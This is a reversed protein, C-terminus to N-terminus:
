CGVNEVMDDTGVRGGRFFANLICLAAPLVDGRAVWVDVVATGCGGEATCQSFEREWGVDVVEECCGRAVGEEVAPPGEFAHTSVRQRYTVRICHRLTIILNPLPLETARPIPTLIINNTTPRQLPLLILPYLHPILITFPM